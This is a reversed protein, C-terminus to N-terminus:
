EGMRLDNVQGHLEQYMDNPMQRTISGLMRGSKSEIWDIDVYENMIGVDPEPPYVSYVAVAEADELYHGQITGNLYVKCRFM